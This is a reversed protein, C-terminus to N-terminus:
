RNLRAGTRATGGGLVSINGNLWRQAIAKQDSSNLGSVRNSGSVEFLGSHFLPAYRASASAWQPSHWVGRFRANASLLRLFNTPASVAPHRAKLILESLVVPM